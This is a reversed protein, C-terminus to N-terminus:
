YLSNLEEKKQAESATDRASSATERFNLLPQKKSLELNELRQRSCHIDCIFIRLLNLVLEPQCALPMAAVSRLCLPQIVNAIRQHPRQSLGLEQTNCPATLQLVRM